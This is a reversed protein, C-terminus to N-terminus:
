RTLERRWTQTLQEWKGPKPDYLSFGYQSTDWAVKVKDLGKDYNGELQGLVCFSVSELNLTNLDIKKRWSRNGYVTNLIRIGRRVSDRLNM